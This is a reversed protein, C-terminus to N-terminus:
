PIQFPYLVDRPVLCPNPAHGARTEFVSGYALFFALLIEGGVFEHGDGAKGSVECDFHGGAFGRLEFLGAGDVVVYEVGHAIVLSPGSPSMSVYEPGAIRLAAITGVEM